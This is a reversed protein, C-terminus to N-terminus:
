NTLSAAKKILNKISKHANSVGSLEFRKRIVSCPDTQNSGVIRHGAQCAYYACCSRGECSPAFRRTMEKKLEAVKKNESERWVSILKNILDIPVAFILVKKAPLFINM